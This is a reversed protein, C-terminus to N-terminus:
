PVRLVCVSKVHVFYNGIKKGYKKGMNIVLKAAVVLSPAGHKRLNEEQILPPYDAGLKAAEGCLCKIPNWRPKGIVM